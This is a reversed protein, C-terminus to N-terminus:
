ERRPTRSSLHRVELGSALQEPPTAGSLSLPQAPRTILDHRITVAGAVLGFVLLYGLGVLLPSRM